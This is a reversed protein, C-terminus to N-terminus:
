ASLLQRTELSEITPRFSSRRANAPRHAPASRFLNFLNM